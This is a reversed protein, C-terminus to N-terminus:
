SHLDAVSTTLKKAVVVVVMPATVMLVYVCGFVSLSVFVSVFVSVHVHLRFYSVFLCYLQSCM